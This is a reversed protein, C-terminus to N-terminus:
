GTKGKQRWGGEGRYSKEEGDRVGISKRGCEVCSIENINWVTSGGQTGLIM